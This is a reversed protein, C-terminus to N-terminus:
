LISASKITSLYCICLLIVCLQLVSSCFCLNSQLYYFRVERVIIKRGDIEYRHMEEIIRNAGDVGRVDLFRFDYNTCLNTYVFIASFQCFVNM